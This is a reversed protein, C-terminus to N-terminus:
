RSCESRSCRTSYMFYIFDCIAKFLTIWEQVYSSHLGSLLFTAKNRDSMSNIEVKMRNSPCSEIVKKWLTGRIHSLGKCRFLMHHITEEEYDSCINCLPSQINNNTYRYLCMNLKSCCMFLRIITVCKKRDRPVNQIYQWWASTELSPM